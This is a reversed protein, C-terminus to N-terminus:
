NTTAGLGFFLRIVASVLGLMLIVYLVARGTTLKGEGPYWKEVKAIM